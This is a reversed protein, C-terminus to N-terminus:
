ETVPATTPTAEPMEEPATTPAPETPTEEPATTPAPEEPVEVIPAETPAATPTPEEPVEGIPAETPAATPTPEEPTEVPAETPAASPTPEAPAPEPPPMLEQINPGFPIFGNFGIIGFVAPSWVQQVQRDSKSPAANQPPTPNYAAPESPTPSTTPAASCATLALSLVVLSFGRKM